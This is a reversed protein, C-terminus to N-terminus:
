TGMIKLVVAVIAAIVGFLSGILMFAKVWSWPNCIADSIRELKVLLAQYKEKDKLVNTEIQAEILEIEKSVHEKLELRFGNSFHRSVEDLLRHLEKLHENNSQVETRLESTAAASQVQTDILKDLVDSLIEFSSNEGAM